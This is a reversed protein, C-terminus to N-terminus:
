SELIVFSSIIQLVFYPVAERSDKSIVTIQMGQKSFTLQKLVIIQKWSTAQLKSRCPDFRKNSM